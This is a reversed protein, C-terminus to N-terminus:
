GGRRDVAVPEISQRREPAPPTSFYVGQAHLDHRFISGLQDAKVKGMFAARGGLSALGAVTNAASGGSMEVAPGILDYLTAAREADILTMAGRAIKNEGLFADSANAIIDVLANGIAAIDFTAPPM